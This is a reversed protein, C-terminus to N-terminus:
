FINSRLALAPLAPLARAPEQWSVCELRTYRQSRKNTTAKVDVDAITMMCMLMRGWRRGEM